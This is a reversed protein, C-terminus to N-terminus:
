LRESCFNNNCYAKSKEEAWHRPQLKDTIADFPKSNDCTKDQEERCDEGSARVRLRVLTQAHAELERPEEPLSGGAAHRVAGSGIRPPPELRIHHLTMEMTGQWARRAVLKTGASKSYQANKDHAQTVVNGGINADRSVKRVFEVMDAGEHQGDSNSSSGSSDDSTYDGDSDRELSM